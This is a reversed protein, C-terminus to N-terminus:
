SSARYATLWGTPYHHFRPMSAHKEDGENEGHKAAMSDSASDTLKYPRPVVIANAVGICASSLPRSSQKNTYFIYITTM